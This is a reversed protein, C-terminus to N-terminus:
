KAAQVQNSIEKGSLARSYIRLDDIAGTFYYTAAYSDASGVSLQLGIDAGMKEAAGTVTGDPVGNVYVTGVGSKFTGAVHYWKDAELLTTGMVVVNWNSRDAKGILLAVHGGNLSLFYTYPGKCAIVHYDARVDPKVWATVTVEDSFNLANGNGCNVYSTGSFQLANGIKGAVWCGPAALNTLKGNNGNGSSDAATDGATEDFKWWGVLGAEGAYAAAGLLLGLTAGALIGIRRVSLSDHM